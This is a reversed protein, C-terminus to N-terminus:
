VQGEVRGALMQRYHELPVAPVVANSAGLVFGGQPGLDRVLQRTTERIKEPPGFQLLGCDMNGCLCLRDGVVVKAQRIDMGAVPDIAQLANLGSGALDELLPTVNGDTHLVSSLGLKRLADTWQRLYPLIWRQMQAPTFFPGHNDAIDCAACVFDVGLDRLQKALEVGRILLAQAEADIQEPEDHIRFCFAEYDAAGPMTLIAPWIGALLIDSGLQQKLL